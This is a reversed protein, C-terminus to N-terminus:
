AAVSALTTLASAHLFYVTASPAVAAALLQERGEEDEVRGAERAAKCRVDFRVETLRVPLQRRGSRDRLSM